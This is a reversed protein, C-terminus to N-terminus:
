ETDEEETDEETDLGPPVEKGDWGKKEGKTWGPPVKSEGWGKKKGKEFGKPMGEQKGKAYVLSPGFVLPTVMVAMCVLIIIKKM